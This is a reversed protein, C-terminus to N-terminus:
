KEALKNIGERLELYSSLWSPIPTKGTCWASVTTRSVKVKEALHSQKWGLALLRQKLEAGTMYGVEKIGALGRGAAGLRDGGRRAMGAAGQWAKGQWARGLRAQRAQGLRDVGRWAAGAKGPGARGRRDM